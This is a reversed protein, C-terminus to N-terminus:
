IGYKMAPAREIPRVALPVLLNPDDEATKGRGARRGQHLCLSLQQEDSRAATYTSPHLEHLCGPLRCYPMAMLTLTCVAAGALGQCVLLLTTAFGASFGGRGGCVV